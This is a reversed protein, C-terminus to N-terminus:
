DILVISVTHNVGHDNTHTFNGSTDASIALSGLALYVGKEVELCIVIEIADQASQKLIELPRLTHKSEVKFAILKHKTESKYHIRAIIEQGTYCGKKFSIATTKHLDLRHPLFTGSTIEDLEMINSKICEAIWDSVKGECITPIHNKLQTFLTTENERAIVFLTLTASYKLTYGLASIDYNKMPISFYHDHITSSVTGIITYLKSSDEITVKSFIAYHKLANLTINMLTTPLVLLYGSETKMISFLTIIRGKLNCHMSRTFYTDSLETVDSTLQGQLFPTADPGSVSITSMNDLCVFTNKVTNPLTNM